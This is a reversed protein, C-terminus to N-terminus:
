HKQYVIEYQRLSALSTFQYVHEKLGDKIAAAYLVARSICDVNPKRAGMQISARRPASV